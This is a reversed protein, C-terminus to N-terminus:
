RTYKIIVNDSVDDHSITIIFSTKIGADGAVVTSKISTDGPHWGLKTQLEANNAGEVYTENDEWYEQLLLQLHEAKQAASNLHTQKIYESYSPVAIAALIGIIAIALLAETLTFGRPNTTQKMNPSRPLAKDAQSTFFVGRLPTKEKYWLWGKNASNQATLAHM